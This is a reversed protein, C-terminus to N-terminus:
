NPETPKCPPFENFYSYYYGVFPGEEPRDKFRPEPVFYIYKGPQVYDDPFWSRSLVREPTAFFRLRNLGLFEEADDVVIVYDEELCLRRFEYSQEDISESYVRGGWAAKEWCIFHGILLVPVFLASIRVIRRPSAIMAMVGRVALPLMVWLPILALRLPNTPPSNVTVLSHFYIAFVALAYLGLINVPRERRGAWWGIPALLIVIWGQRLLLDVPLILRKLIQTTTLDSTFGGSIHADGLFHLPNGTSLYMCLLWIAPFICWLSLGAAIRLLHTHLSLRRSFTFAYALCFMVLTHPWAEYRNLQNAMACLAVLLWMWRNPRTVLSVLGFLMWAQMVLFFPESLGCATLRWGYAPALTMCLAILPLWVRKSGLASPTIRIATWVTGWAALGMMLTSPPIYWFLMPTWKGILHYYGGYIWFTIPPWYPIPGPHFLYEKPWCRAVLMRTFDDVAAAVFLDSRWMHVGVFGWAVFCSAAIWPGKAKLQSQM